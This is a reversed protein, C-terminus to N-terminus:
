SKKPVARVAPSPGEAAAAASSSSSSSSSATTTSASSAFSTFTDVGILPADDPRATRRALHARRRHGGCVSDGIAGRGVIVVVVVVVVVVVM